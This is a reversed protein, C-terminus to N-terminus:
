YLDTDITKAEKEVFEVIAREDPFNLLDYCCQVYSGTQPYYLFLADHKIKYRLGMRRCIRRAAEIKPHEAM